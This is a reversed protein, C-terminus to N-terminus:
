VFIHDMTSHSIEFEFLGSDYTTQKIDSNTEKITSM